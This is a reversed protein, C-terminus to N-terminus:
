AVRLLRLERRLRYLKWKKNVACFICAVWAYDVGTYRVKIELPLVLGTAGLADLTLSLNEYVESSGAM